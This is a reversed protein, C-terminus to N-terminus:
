PSAFRRICRPNSDLQTAVACVWKRGSLGGKESGLKQRENLHAEGEGPAWSPWVPIVNLPVKSDKAFSPDFPLNQRSGVYPTQGAPM